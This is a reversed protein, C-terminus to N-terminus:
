DSPPTSTKYGKANWVRRLVLDGDKVMLLSLMAALSPEFVVAAAADLTFWQRKRQQREPWDDLERIEAMPFVSVMCPTSSGDEAIKRYGFKGLRSKAIKGKIGAEERAEQAAAQPNSKGAMPWGKPLLWHQ